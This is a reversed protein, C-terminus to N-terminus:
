FTKFNMRAKYELFLGDMACVLLCILVLLMRHDAELLVITAWLACANRSGTQPKLGISPLKHIAIMWSSMQMQSVCTSM